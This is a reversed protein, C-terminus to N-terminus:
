EKTYHTVTDTYFHARGEEVIMLYNHNASVSVSSGLSLFKPANGKLDDIVEVYLSFGCPSSKPTINNNFMEVKIVKAVVAYKSKEVAEVFDWDEFRASAETAFFLFTLILLFNRM